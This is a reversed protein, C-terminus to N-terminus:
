NGIFDVLDIIEGILSGKCWFFLLSLCNMKIRQLSSKPKRFMKLEKRESLGGSALLSSKGGITDKKRCGIGRWSSLLEKTTAPMVWNVGRMALFMSWLYSNHFLSTTLKFSTADLKFYRPYCWYLKNWKTPSSSKTSQSLKM